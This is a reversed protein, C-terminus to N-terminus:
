RPHLSDSPCMSLPARRTLTPSPLPDQVGQMQLMEPGDPHFSRSSIPALSCHPSHTQQKKADFCCTPVGPHPPLPPLVQLNPPLPLAEPILCLLLRLPPTGPPGPSFPLNLPQHEATFVSCQPPHRPPLSGAFSDPLVFAALLLSDRPSHLASAASLGGHSEQQLQVQMRVLTAPGEGPAVGPCSGSSGVAGTPLEPSPRGLSKGLHVPARM